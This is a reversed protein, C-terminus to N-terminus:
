LVCFKQLMQIYIYLNERLPNHGILQLFQSERWYIILTNTSWRKDQEVKLKRMLRM